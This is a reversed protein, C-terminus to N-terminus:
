QSEFNQSKYPLYVNKYWDVFFGMGAAISTERYDGILGRLQSTEAHTVEVDFSPRQIVKFDVPTDLEKGLAKLLQLTTIPKSSAINLPLYGSFEVKLLAILIDVADDIFTFNRTGGDNGFLAIEKNELITELFHWYAMDPRGNPGYFTFFRLAITPVGTIDHYSNALVENSWKTASYFSKLNKGTAEIETVAGKAALDGYVSSSSAFFFKKPKAINTYNLINGFANVNNQYYHEPTQQGYRVGPWAALHLVIDFGGYSEQLEKGTIKSLDVSDVQFGYKDKLFEARRKCHEPGYPASFNDLGVLDFLDTELIKASVNSGIFGAAGTILVKPKM